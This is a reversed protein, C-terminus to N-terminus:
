NDGNYAGKNLKINLSDKNLSGFVGLTLAYCSIGISANMYPNFWTVILFALIACLSTCSLLINDSREKKNEKISSFMVTLCIFIPILYLLLGFLGMKNIIDYYFYEIIGNTSYTIYSGLGHGFIPSLMISEKVERVMNDRFSDSNKSDDIYKDIAEDNRVTSVTPISTDRSGTDEKEKTNDEFSIGFTRKVAFDIYNVGFYVSQLGIFVFMLVTSIIIHKAIKKFSYRDIILYLTIMALATIGFTAYLSRTFTLFISWMLVGTAISYKWLFKTSKIQFYMFYACACVMYPASKFFMRYLVPTIYDQNALLADFLFYYVDTRLYTLLCVTIYILLSLVAQFLAGICLTKIAFSIRDKNRLTLIAVPICSLYSFGKLDSNILTISNGAKYGLAACIFIYVVFILITLNFPQMLYQKIQKILPALAFLLSLLLFIMRPTVSGIKIFHGGGSWSCDFIFLCFFVFSMSECFGIYDKNSITQKIEKILDKIM